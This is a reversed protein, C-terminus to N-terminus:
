AESPGHTEGGGKNAAFGKHIANFLIHNGHNLAQEAQLLLRAEQASAGDGLGYQELKTILDKLEQETSSM